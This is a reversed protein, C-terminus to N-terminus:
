EGEYPISSSKKLTDNHASNFCMQHIYPVKPSVGEAASPRGLEWSKELIRSGWHGPTFTFSWSHLTDSEGAGLLRM